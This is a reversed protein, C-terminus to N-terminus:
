PDAPYDTRGDGDDDRGDDCAHRECTTQTSPPIARCTYGPACMASTTCPEGVGEYFPVTLAYTGASGVTRGDAILYYTGPTLELSLSSATDESGIDDNCALETSAQTCSRRVYLVTDLTTGPGDTTAVMTVPHDLTFVYATEAGRGQCSVSQVNGPT